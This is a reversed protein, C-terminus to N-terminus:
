INNSDYVFLPYYEKKKHNYSVGDIYSNIIFVFDLNYVNCVFQIPWICWISLKLLWKKKKTIWHINYYYKTVGLWLISNRKKSNTLYNAYEVVSDFWIKICITIHM